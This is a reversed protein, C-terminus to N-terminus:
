IIEPGPVCTNGNTPIQPVEYALVNFHVFKIPKKSENRSFGHGQWSNIFYIDGTKPTYNIMDCAYTLKSSDKERLSLQRKGPRPDYLIVKSSDEPVDLFYFGTIQSYNSHVHEFHYGGHDIRQGWFETLQTNYLNMAYGQSDLINWATQAIFSMVDNLEPVFMNESQIVAWETLNSNYQTQKAIFKEYVKKTEKVYEPKQIIYLNSSFNNVYELVNQEM